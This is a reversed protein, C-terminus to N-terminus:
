RRARVPVVAEGGAALLGALDDARLKARGGIGWGTGWSNWVWYFRGTVNYGHLLTAHGGVVRGLRHLYGDSSPWMMGEHWDTGIVVPGRRSVAVAVEPESAAWHYAEYHGLQRATEAGALVSTGDYTPSAGPYAGGAWPDVRQAEWYLTRATTTSVDPVRRPVAALEHAFSFGVCAGEVGQDLHPGVPWTYSRPPPLNALLARAPYQETRPDHQPIRDLRPDGTVHGGRLQLAGPPLDSM